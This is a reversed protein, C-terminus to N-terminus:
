AEAEQQYFFKRLTQPKDTEKLPVPKRLSSGNIKWQWPRRGEIWPRYEFQTM